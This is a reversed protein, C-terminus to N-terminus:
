PINLARGIQDLRDTLETLRSQEAQLQSALEGERAQIQQLSKETQEAELKLVSLADNFDKRKQPDTTQTAESEIAKLRQEMKPQESRVHDVERRLDDLQRATRAVQEQQM